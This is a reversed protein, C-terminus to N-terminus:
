RSPLIRACERISRGGNDDAMTPAPGDLTGLAVDVNIRGDVM